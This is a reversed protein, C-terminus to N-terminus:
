VEGFNSDFESVVTDQGAVLSGIGQFAKNYLRHFAISIRNIHKLVTRGIYATYVTAGIKTKYRM